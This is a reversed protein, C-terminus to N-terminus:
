PRGSGVHELLLQDTLEGIFVFIVVVYLIGTASQTAGIKAAEWSMRSLIAAGALGAGLRVALWLWGLRDFAFAGGTFSALAAAEVALRAVLAVFLWRHLRLLPATSLNIAILYWHGLLMATLALGLLAASAADVLREMWWRLGGAPELSLAASAALCAAVAALLAPHRLPAFEAVSWSWAGALAAGLALGLALWFTAAPVAHGFAAATGILCLTIIFHLRYFRPEVQGAPLALLAFLMGAALRLCFIEIM